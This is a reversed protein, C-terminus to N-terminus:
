LTYLNKTRFKLKVASAESCLELTFPEAAFSGCHFDWQIRRLSFGVSPEATFTGCQFDKYNIFNSEGHMVKSEMDQRQRGEVPFIPYLTSLM